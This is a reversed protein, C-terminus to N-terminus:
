LGGGLIASIVYFFAFAFWILILGIKTGRGYYEKPEEVISEVEYLSGSLRGSAKRRKTSMLKVTLWELSGKFEAKQWLWLILHYFLMVYAVTGLLEWGSLGLNLFPGNHLYVWSDTVLNIILQLLTLPLIVLWQLCWLTLTMIGFRRFTVTRKAFKKGKGRVDVMYIIIMLLLVSGATTLLFEGVRFESLDISDGIVMDIIKYFFGIVFMIITSYIIKDSFKKKVDGDAINLGIITGILMAALNPFLPNFDIVLPTLFFYLVNLSFTREAWDTSPRDWFDPMGYKFILILIPTLIIVVIALRGLFKVIESVSGGKKLLIIYIASIIIVSLGIMVLIQTFFLPRVFEGQLTGDAFTGERLLYSLLGGNLMSESLYGMMIIFLGRILQGIFTNKYVKSKEDESTEPTIKRNIRKSMSVINVLGSLAIFLPFFTGMYGLIVILLIFPINTADIAAEVALDANYSENLLHFGIVGMIACGRLFDLSIYRKM